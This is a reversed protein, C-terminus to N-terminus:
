YWSNRNNIPIPVTGMYTGQSTQLMYNESHSVTLSELLSVTEDFSNKEHQGLDHLSPFSSHSRILTQPMQINLTYGFNLNLTM